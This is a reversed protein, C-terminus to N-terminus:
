TAIGLNDKIGVLKPQNFKELTVTQMDMIYDSVVDWIPPGDSQSGVTSWGAVKYKKNAEVISGDDLTLTSIRKGFEATPNLTYNLGGVRVM